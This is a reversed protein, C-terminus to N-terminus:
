KPTTGRRRATSRPQRGASEEGTVTASLLWIMVEACKGVRSLAAGYRGSKAIRDFKNRFERAALLNSAVKDWTCSGLFPLHGSCVMLFHMVSRFNTSGIRKGKATFRAVVQAARPGRASDAYRATRWSAGIHKRTYTGDPFRHAVAGPISDQASPVTVACDLTSLSRTPRLGEPQLSLGRYIRRPLTAPTALGSSWVARPLLALRPHCGRPRLARCATMTCRHVHAVRATRQLVLTTAFLSLLRPRRSPPPPTLLAM